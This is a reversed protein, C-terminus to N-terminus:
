IDKVEWWVPSSCCFVSAVLTDIGEDLGIWWICDGPIIAVLTKSIDKGDVLVADLSLKWDVSRKPDSTLLVCCKLLASKVSFTNVNYPEFEVELDYAGVSFINIDYPVLEEEVDYTEVVDINVGYQESLEVGDDSMEGSCNNVNVDYPALDIEVDYTEVSFNDVDYSRLENGVDYTGDFLNNVDYPRLEVGVDCTEVSFSDVDYIRLENGVDFTGDCFNNVDYPSPEVDEDYKGVCFPVFLCNTTILVTGSVRNLIGHDCWIDWTDTLGVGCILIIDDSISTDEIIVGEGCVDVDEERNM